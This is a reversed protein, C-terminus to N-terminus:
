DILTAMVVPPERNTDAVPAEKGGGFREVSSGGSM